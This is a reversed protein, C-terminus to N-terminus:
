STSAAPNYRGKSSLIRSNYPCFYVLTPSIFFRLYSRKLYHSSHYLINHQVTVPDEKQTKRIIPHIIFYIIGIMIATMIHVRVYNYMLMAAIVEIWFVGKTVGAIKPETIIASHVRHYEKKSMDSGRWLFLWCNFNSWCYDIRWCLGM